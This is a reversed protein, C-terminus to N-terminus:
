RESIGVVLAHVFDPSGGAFCGLAGSAFLVLISVGCPAPGVTDSVAPHVETVLHQFKHRTSFCFGLFLGRGSKLVFQKVRM